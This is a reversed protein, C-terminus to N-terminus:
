RPRAVAVLFMTSGIYRKNEIAREPVDEDELLYFRRRDKNNYFFKEDIHVVNMMPDFQLSTTRVKSLAFQLRDIYHKEKLRPKLFSSCRKIIGTQRLHHVTSTSVSLASAVDRTTTRKHVPIESMKQKLEEIDLSKKRGSNGKIRSFVKELANPTIANAKFRQWIRAITNRHRGFHQAAENITGSSLSGLNMRHLLFLVIDQREQNTLNKYSKTM